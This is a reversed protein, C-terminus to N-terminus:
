SQRQVAKGQMLQSNVILGGISISVTLYIIDRCNRGVGFLYEGLAAGNGDNEVLSPIGFDKM